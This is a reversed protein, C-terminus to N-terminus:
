RAGGSATIEHVTGKGVIDGKFDITGGKIYLTRDQESKAEAAIDVGVNKEFASVLTDANVPDTGELGLFETQGM